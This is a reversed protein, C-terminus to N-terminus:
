HQARQAAETKTEGVATHKAHTNGHFVYEKDFCITEIIVFNGNPVSYTYCAIFWPDVLNQQSLITRMWSSGMAAMTKM